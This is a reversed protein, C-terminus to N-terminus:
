SLMMIVNGVVGEVHIEAVSRLSWLHFSCSLYAEGSGSIM